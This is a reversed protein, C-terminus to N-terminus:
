SRCSSQFHHHALIYLGVWKKFKESPRNIREIIREIVDLPCRASIKPIVKECCKGVKSLTHCSKGVNALMQCSNIVKALMQWCEDVLLWSKGFNPLKPFKSCSDFNKADKTLKQFSNAVNELIQLRKGVTTLM